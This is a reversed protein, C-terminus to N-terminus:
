AAGERVESSRTLWATLLRDVVARAESLPMPTPPAEFDRGPHRADDGLAHVSNATHTLRKLEAQSPASRLDGLTVGASQIVEVVRMLDM